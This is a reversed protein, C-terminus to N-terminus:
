SLNARSFEAKFINERIRSHRPAYLIPPAYGHAVVGGEMSDQAQLRETRPAAQGRGQQADHGEAISQLAENPNSKTKIYNTSKAGLM